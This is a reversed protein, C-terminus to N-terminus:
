VSATKLGTICRNRKLSNPGSRKPGIRGTEGPATGLDRPVYWREVGDDPKKVAYLTNNDNKLDSSDFIMLIVLVGQSPKTGVFPNQQWSWHGDDKLSKDHLRFRGGPETPSGAADVM